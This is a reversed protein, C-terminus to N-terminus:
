QSGGVGAARILWDIMLQSGRVGAGKILWDIMQQSGGVGAVSFLWDIMQQSGGAGAGRILWDILAIWVVAYGDKVKVILRNFVLGSGPFLSWIPYMLM